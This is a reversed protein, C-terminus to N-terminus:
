LLKHHALYARGDKACSWTRGRYEYYDKVYKDALMQELHYLAVPARLRSASALLELESQDPANALEILLREAEDPLRAFVPRQSTQQRASIRPPRKAAYFLSILSFLLLILTPPLLRALKLAFSAQILQDLDLYGWLFFAGTSLPVSIGLLLMAPVTPREKQLREALYKFVENM